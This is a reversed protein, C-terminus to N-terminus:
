EVSGQAYAANGPSVGDVTGSADDVIFIGLEADFVVPSDDSDENLSSLKGVKLAFNTTVDHDEGGPVRIADSTTVDGATEPQIALVVDNYDGDGGGFM